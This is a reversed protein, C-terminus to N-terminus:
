PKWTRLGGKGIAVHYVEIGQIHKRVEPMHTKFAETERFRLHHDRSEWGIFCVYAKGKLTEGQLSKFEVDEKIWGSAEGWAGADVAPEVASKVFTDWVDGFDAPVSDAAFYWYVIETAPADLTPKIPKTPTCHVLKLSPVDVAEGIKEAFPKYIDRKTFATHDEITDWDVLLISCESDEMKLGWAADQYGKQESLVKFTNDIVGRQAPDTSEFEMGKHTHLPLTAIETIPVSM